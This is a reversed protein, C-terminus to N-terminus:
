DRRTPEDVSRACCGGYPCMRWSRTSSMRDTTPRTPALTGESPIDRAQFPRGPSPSPAQISSFPVSPQSTALLVGACERLRAGLVPHELYARAEDLSTIAFAQSMASHGLGAIQPFVFWVWHGTKRGARLEALAGRYAHEQEATFRELDYPM